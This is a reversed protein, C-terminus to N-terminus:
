LVKFDESPHALIHNSMATALLEISGAYVVIKTINNRNKDNCDSNKIIELAIEKAARINTMKSVLIVDEMTFISYGKSSNQINVETM